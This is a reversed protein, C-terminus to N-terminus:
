LAPWREPSQLWFRAVPVIARRPLILLMRPADFQLHVPGTAQNSTGIRHGPTFALGDIPWRLGDSRGAVAGMPFLSVIDGPALDLMIDPPALFVIEDEGIIVCPRDPYRMLTHFAALQHDIRGGSFGVALVLPASINRLAKDFDTSDQESIRHLRDKPLRALLTDPISDFDGIVADPIVGARDALVAGGDAAVLVPAIVIIENLDSPNASGGGVLTVVESTQVIESFM